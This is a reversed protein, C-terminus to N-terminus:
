ASRENRLNQKGFDLVAAMHNRRQEPPPLELYDNGYERSLYDEPNAMVPLNIFDFPLDITNQVSDSDIWGSLANFEGFYCVRHSPVNEGKRRWFDVRKLLTFYHVRFFCLIAHIIKCPTEALFRKLPDKFPSKIPANTRLVMMKSWFDSLHAMKKALTLDDPVADLPFIDIYIHMRDQAPMCLLEESIFSTGLKQFSAFAKYYDPNNKQWQVEYGPVMIGDAQLKLLKEYDKRPMYFDMDDDWPIFGHHRYAGLVTGFGALITLDHDQCFSVLMNSMETLSQQLSKLVAPEYAKYIIKKM